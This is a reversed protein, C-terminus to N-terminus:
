GEESEQSTVNERLYMFNMIRITLTVLIGLGALGLWLWNPGLNIFVWTGATPGAVFAIAFTFAFLGIYKGRAHEPARGALFSSILPLVLIEGMTWVVTSVVAWAFGHGLPLLGFGGFLLPTGWTVIKLPNIKELRHILPMEILGILVGNITLLLGIRDETLGYEERMFLPWTNFIQYFLFGMCFACALGFIFIRDKFPNVKEHSESKEKKEHKQEDLRFLFLFLFAAIIYTLGDAWFLYHYSIVALFGGVAPGITIGLNIALRNLAFARPRIDPECVDTLATMNAPRFADAIMALIFMAVGISLPTTFQGLIIFGMGALLLSFFQVRKTGIIDSLWGGLYSGVLSGFGWISIMRGALDKPFDLERTLYLAMFFLVMAGSYNVLVVASLLWAQRPLGSFAEKYLRMLGIAINKM